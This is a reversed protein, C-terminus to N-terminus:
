SIEMEMSYQLLNESTSGLIGKLNVLFQKKIIRSFYSQCCEGTPNLFFM